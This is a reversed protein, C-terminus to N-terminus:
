RGPVDTPDLGATIAIDAPRDVRRSLEVAALRSRVTSLVGAIEVTATAGDVRFEWDDPARRDLLRLAPSQLQGLRAGRVGVRRRARRRHAFAFPARAFGEVGDDPNRGAFGNVVTTGRLYPLSALRVGLVGNSLYPPLAEVARTTVAPPSIPVPVNKRRLGGQDPDDRSWRATVTIVDARGPVGCTDRAGELPRRGVTPTRRHGHVATM